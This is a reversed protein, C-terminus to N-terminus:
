PADDNLAQNASLPQREPVLFTEIRRAAEGTRELLLWHGAGRMVSLSSQGILLSMVRANVMPVIPDDDGALIFTPMSLRHLWPLSTFGTMAYIQAAYGRRTPAQARALAIVIQRCEEARRGGFLERADRGDVTVSALGRRKLLRRISGVRGPFMLQGGSTAVLVLRRVRDPHDRAMRQALLGGWGVGLLDVRAYGLADLLANVWASWAPMRRMRVVDGSAGIGPLDFRITPRSLAACFDDLIELNALFNNCILVPTGEGPTLAVRVSEGDAQIDRLVTQEASASM